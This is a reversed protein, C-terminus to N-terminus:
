VRNLGPFGQLISSYQLTKHAKLRTIDYGELLWDLQQGTLTMCFVFLTEAFPDQQLQSEVLAALSRM